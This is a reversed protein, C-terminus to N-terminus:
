EGESIKVAQALSLKNEYLAKGLIAAYVGMKKLTKLEELSSIGGSATIRVGPIQM